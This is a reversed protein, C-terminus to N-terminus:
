GACFAGHTKLRPHIQWIILEFAVAKLSIYSATQLLTSYKDTFINKNILLNSPSQQNEIDASQTSFTRYHAKMEMANIFHIHIFFLAFMFFLSTTHM